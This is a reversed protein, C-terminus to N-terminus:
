QVGHQERRKGKQSQWKRMKSEQSWKGFLNSIDLDQNLPRIELFGLSLYMLKSGTVSDVM